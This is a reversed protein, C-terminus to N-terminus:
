KMGAKIKAITVLFILVVLAGLLVAMVIARGRQRGRVADGTDAVPTAKWPSPDTGDTM